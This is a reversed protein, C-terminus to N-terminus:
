DQARGARGHSPAIRHYEVRVSCAISTNGAHNSVNLHPRGTTPAELQLSPLAGRFLALAALPSEEASVLLLLYLTTRANVRADESAAARPATKSTACHRDVGHKSRVNREANSMDHTCTHHLQRVTALCWSAGLSTSKSASAGAPPRLISLPLRKSYM